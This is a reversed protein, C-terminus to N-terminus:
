ISSFLRRKLFQNISNFINKYDLGLFNVYKKLFVKGYFGGPMKKYDEEELAEIYAPRVKLSAAAQKITLNRELRALRLQDGLTKYESLVQHATFNTM